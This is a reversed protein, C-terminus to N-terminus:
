AAVPAVARPRIGEIAQKRLIWAIGSKNGTRFQEKAIDTVFSYIEHSIDEPMDFKIMLTNYREELVDYWTKKPAKNTNDM